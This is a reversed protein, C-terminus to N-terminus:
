ADRGFPSAAGGRLGGHAEAYGATMRLLAEHSVALGQSGVCLGEVGLSRNPGRTMRAIKSLGLSAEVEPAVDLVMFAQGHRSWTAIGRIASWPIVGSALRRDRLGQPSLVVVPGITAVAQWAIVLTCFGFFLGGIMGFVRVAIDAHEFPPLPVALAVSLATMGVGLLGLWWLKWPSGPIAITADTDVTM